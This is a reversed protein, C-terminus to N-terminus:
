CNHATRRSTIASADATQLRKRSSSRMIVHQAYNRGLAVCRLSREAANNDIEIRGDDCYRGSRGLAAACLPDSKGDRIEALANRADKGTV